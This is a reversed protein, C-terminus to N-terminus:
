EAEKPGYKKYTEEDVGCLKNIEVQTDDLASGGGKKDTAVKNTVVVVPAKEVFVKFGALDRKAYGTAWEKQAPTIKGSNLALEVAEDADREELRSTLSNVQKMLDAVTGHSQKMAEITGTIEAETATESLGLAGLVAKNAVIASPERLKNIAAFIEAFTASEALGLAKLLEKDMSDEKDTAIGKNMLPVMGDINPQNTLGANILAIVRNDERRKIWVPSIYRYERNEIMQRARPTWEVAGWIGDPGKNVLGKIWGAAPAEVPPDAFTQHEFDVVMDNTHREFDAMILPAEAETLEFPGKPTNHRGFPILQIESPAGGPPTETLTLSNAQMVVYDVQKRVKTWDGTAVKGNGDVSYPVEYLGGAGDRVICRDQYVDVIDGGSGPYAASLSDCLARRIESFSLTM